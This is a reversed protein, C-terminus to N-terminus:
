EDVDGAGQSDFSSRRSEDVDFNNQRRLPRLRDVLGAVTAGAAAAGLVDKAKSVTPTATSGASASAVVRKAGLIAAVATDGGFASASIDKEGSTTPTATV